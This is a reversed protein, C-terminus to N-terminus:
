WSAAACCLAPVCHSEDFSGAGLPLMRSALDLRRALVRFLALPELAGADRPMWRALMAAAEPTYPPSVPDIRPPVARYGGAEIKVARPSIMAELDSASLLTSGNGPRGTRPDCVPRGIM